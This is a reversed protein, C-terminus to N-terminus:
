REGKEFVTSTQREGERRVAENRWSQVQRDTHCHGTHEARM